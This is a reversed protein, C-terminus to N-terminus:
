YTQQDGDYEVELVDNAAEWYDDDMEEDLEDAQLEIEEARQALKQATRELNRAERQMARAEREVSRRERPKDDLEEEARAMLEDAREDLEESQRELKEAQEELAEAVAELEASRRTAEQAIANGMTYLQHERQAQAQARYEAVAPTQAQIYQELALQRADPAQWGAVGTGATVGGFHSVVGLNGRHKGTPNILEVFAGFIAQEPGTGQVRIKDKQVDVMVPVDSRAMLGGLADLKGEPLQYDQWEEKSDLMIVFAEFVAHQAETAHVEIGVDVPRVRVPVDPRVMLESLAKLKGKPLPTRGFPSRTRPLQRLGGEPTGVPAVAPVAM